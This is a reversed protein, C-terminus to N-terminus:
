LVSVNEGFLEPAMFAPTGVLKLTGKDEPNMDQLLLVLLTYVHLTGFLLRQDALM